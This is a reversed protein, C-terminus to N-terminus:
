QAAPLAMRRIPQPRGSVRLKWGARVWYDVCFGLTAEEQALVSVHGGDLMYYAREGPLLATWSSRESARLQEFATNIAVDHSGVSLGASSLKTILPTASVHVDINIDTNNLVIFIRAAWKIFYFNLALRQQGKAQRAGRWLEKAMGLGGGDGSTGGSSASSGSVAASTGSTCTNYTKSLGPPLQALPVVTVGPEHAVRGSDEADEPATPQKSFQKTAAAIYDTYHIATNPGAQSKAMHVLVRLANCAAVGEGAKRYSSINQCLAQLLEDATLSSEEEEAPALDDETLQALEVRESEIGISAM